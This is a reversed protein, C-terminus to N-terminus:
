IKMQMLFLIKWHNMLIILLDYLDLDDLKKKFPQKVYPLVCLNWWDDDYVEKMHKYMFDAFPKRLLLLYEYLLTYLRIRNKDM